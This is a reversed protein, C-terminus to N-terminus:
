LNARRCEPGCVARDASTRRRAARPVVAALREALAEAIEKGHRPVWVGSANVCSRGGNELISAVMVDLYKEWDDIADEGIVVKSYGPGHIEIRPDGQWERPLRADGFIM